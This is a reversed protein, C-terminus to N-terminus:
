AGTRGHIKKNQKEERLARLKAKEREYLDQWHELIWLRLQFEPLSSAQTWKKTRQADHPPPQSENQLETTAEITPQGEVFVVYRKLVRLALRLNDGELPLTAGVESWFAKELENARHETLLQNYLENCGFRTLAEQLVSERTVPPITPKTEVVVEEHDQLELTTPIFQSQAISRDSNLQSAWTKSLGLRKPAWDDMFNRFM